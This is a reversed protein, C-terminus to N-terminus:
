AMRGVMSKGSDLLASGRRESSTASSPAAAGVIAPASLPKGCDIASQAQFNGCHGVRSIPVSAGGGVRIGALSGGRRSTLALGEPDHKQARCAHIAATERVAPTQRAAEAPPINRVVAMECVAWVLDTNLVTPIKRASPVNRIPMQRPTGIAALAEWFACISPM